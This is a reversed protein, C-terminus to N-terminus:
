ANFIDGLMKKLAPAMVVPYSGGLARTTGDVGKTDKGVLVRRTRKRIARVIAEAVQEPTSASKSAMLNKTFADRMFEPM